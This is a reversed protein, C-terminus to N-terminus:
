GMQNAPKYITTNPNLKRSNICLKQQVNRYYYTANDYCLIIACINSYAYLTM